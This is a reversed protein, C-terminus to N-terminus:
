TEVIVMRVEVPGHVGVVLTQEIDATRSPGSILSLYSGMDGERELLAMRRLAFLDDLSEYVQHPEVIAVHVPPLLPARRSVGPRAALVVSGTEAVAYDVGTVGLDAQAVTVRLQERSAGSSAADVSVRVGHGRLAADLPLRLFVPHASRVVSRAGKEIALALIYGVAEQASPARYVKWGQLAAVDALRAILQARKAEARAEITVARQRQDERRLKLPLYDPPPAGEPRGLADRVRKLFEEQKM